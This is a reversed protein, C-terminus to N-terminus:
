ATPTLRVLVDDRQRPFTDGKPRGDRNSTVAYLHGDPGQEVHRVRGLVDTLTWHASAAYADDHWAADFTLGRDDSVPPLSAADDAFSVVNVRQGILSGFVLRNRWEPIAEGTYFVGGSPGWSETTNVLPRHFAPNAEYEPGTRADPWGYNAGPVLRNVEDHGDPGHETIIPTADPLWTICQPNRHGYTYVRPDPDDGPLDPNGPAPEGVTDVRLVSGALSSTDQSLPGEGAEGTTIWLYNEPGFAIRGGNHVGGAPIDDVITRGTGAPDDAEVDYRVVRNVTDGDSTATFYVFLYPAEPYRPHVAVGLMGGEGGEVFWTKWHPKDDPGPAMAEADIVEDPTAVPHLQGGDFRHVRGTRETVFLEGTPAFALDWPIELNEVLVEPSISASLPSSAPKEWGPDYRSWEEATHNLEYEPGSRREALRGCGALGAAGVVALFQRRTRGTSPGGM